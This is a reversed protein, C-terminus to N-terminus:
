SCQTGQKLHAHARRLDPCDRQIQLWASRTSFPLSSKNDLIDQISVGRVISDEMDRVFTCIQCNSENCDPANRSTFDSPLNVKGALHQLSVQYHSITIFSTVRPSASFEGRCLKDIAQVCPKSDTLVTTPHSSQIIFPSFYKVTAAISLAEVECPLWTVQHKRLKGSYFGALHLRSAHSVYLTASLGRKTISGNTAIWLTDSPCPLVISKHRYLNEQATKFKLTLNEDWLLKDNSQLGILTCELPDVTDSCNPLVRGLAKYTGIFSRLGKM